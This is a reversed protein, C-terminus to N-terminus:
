GRVKERLRRLWRLPATCRWSFSAQMAAVKNEAQRARAQARQVEAELSQTAHAVFNDHICPPFSFAPKLELHERALYFRNLGDFYVFEYRANQLLPEWAEHAAHRSNPWTAEVVVIWPRWQQFDMHELVCKETGEVDIKLFHIEGKVHQRCIEALPMVVAEMVRVGRGAAQHTEAIALDSTALGTHPIDYFPIRGAAGGACLHLNLDGPRERTLQHFYQAVPEINIGRWGREYFARTVSCDTPDHAGVDIYFGVAIHKLARWLMIDEFNQAYSVFRM